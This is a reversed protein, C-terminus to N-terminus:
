PVQGLFLSGSWGVAELEGNSGSRAHVSELWLGVRLGEVETEVWMEDAPVTEGPGYGETRLRRALELVPVTLSTGDERLIRPGADEATVRLGGPVRVTDGGRSGVRTVVHDFGSLPRTAMTGRATFSLPREPSPGQWPSVYEIGLASVIAPATPGPDDRGGTESAPEEAVDVPLEGGFASALAATGHRELLYRTTASIERRDEFPVDSTAPRVSGDVVLRNQELLSALRDRQSRESVDYASWPGVFTVLAVVALSRPVLQIDDSQRVAYHLAVAALWLALVLLFYRDETIGYQSVRQWIALLLLAISPLLAVWFWRGYIRVWANEARRRVPHVLLLALIGAVSVGSVLWGIWGSPWDWTATVRLAYATLIALYVVVLPVLVYQAFIRLGKPYETLQELAALDDPVGALFFWPHFLLAVLIWLRAYADGSVPLGFLHDLAALALALGGFLVVAYLAATLFRLFLARNYQWFGNPERVGVFPLFAALLHFGASLQLYRRVAVEEPWGPWAVFVAALAAIGLAHLAGRRAANWGRREGLLTFAFHLPLALTAVVLLRGWVDRASGPEEVLVLASTAAALAAVVVVPFRRATLRAGRALQDLSPLRM